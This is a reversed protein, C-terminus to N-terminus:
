IRIAIPSSSTTPFQIRWIMDNKQPFYHANFNELIKQDFHKKFDDDKKVRELLREDSGRALDSLVKYGEELIYNRALEGKNNVEEKTLLTSIQGPLKNRKFLVHATELGGVEELFKKAM